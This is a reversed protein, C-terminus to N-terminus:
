NHLKQWHEFLKNPRAFIKSNCKLMNMLESGNSDVEDCREEGIDKKPWTLMELCKLKSQFINETPM